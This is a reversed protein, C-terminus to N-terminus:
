YKIFKLDYVNERNRKRILFIIVILCIILVPVIIYLTNYNKFDILEHGMSNDQSLGAGTIEIYSERKVLSEDAVAVIYISQNEIKVDQPVTFNIVFLFREKPEVIEIKKPYIDFWSSPVNEMTIFLSHITSNGSNELSLYFTESEGPVLKFSPVNNFSMNLEIDNLLIQSEASIITKNSLVLNATIRHMGKENCTPILVEEEKESSSNLIKIIEVKKDSENYCVNKISIKVNTDKIGMNVLELIVPLTEGPTVTKTPVVLKMDFPGIESVVNFEEMKTDLIENKDKDLLTAVVKIQGIDDPVFTSSLITREQPNLEFIFEKEDLIKGEMDISMQLMYSQKENGDNRIDTSFTVEELVKPEPSSSSIRYIGNAYAIGNFLLIFIIFSLIFIKM